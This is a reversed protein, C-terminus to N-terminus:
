KGDGCEDGSCGFCCCGLFELHRRKEIELWSLNRPYDSYPNQVVKFTCKSRRRPEVSKIEPFTNM